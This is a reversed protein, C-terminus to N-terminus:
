VNSNGVVEPYLLLWGAFCGSIGIFTLRIHHQDTITWTTTTTTTTSKWRIRNNPTWRDTRLSLVSKITSIYSIDKFDVERLVVAGQNNLVYKHALVMLYPINLNTQVPDPRLLSWLKINYFIPFFQINIRIFLLLVFTAGEIHYVNRMGNLWHIFWMELDRYALFNLLSRYKEVFKQWM